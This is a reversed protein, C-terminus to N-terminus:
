IGGWERVRRRSPGARRTCLTEPDPVFAAHPTKCTFHVAKLVFRRLAEEGGGEEMSRSSSVSSTGPEVPYPRSTGAYLKKLDAERLWIDTIELNTHAVM